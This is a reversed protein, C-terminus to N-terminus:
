SVSIGKKHGDKVLELAAVEKLGHRVDDSYGDTEGEGLSPLDSM